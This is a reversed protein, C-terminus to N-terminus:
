SSPPLFHAMNAINSIGDYSDHGADPTKLRLKRSRHVLLRCEWCWVRGCACKSLRWSWCFACAWDADEGLPWVHQTRGKTLLSDVQSVKGTLLGMRSCKIKKVELCDAWFVWLSEKGMWICLYLVNFFYSVPSRRWLLSASSLPHTPFLIIVLQDSDFGPTSVPSETYADTMGLWIRWLLFNWKLSCFVMNAFTGAFAPVCHISFQLLCTCDSININTTLSPRTLFFALSVSM